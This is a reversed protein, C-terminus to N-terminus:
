HVASMVVKAGQAEAKPIALDLPLPAGAHRLWNVFLQWAEPKIHGWHNHADLLNVAMERITALVFQRNEFAPHQVLQQLLFSVTEPQNAVYQYAENTIRMFRHVVAPHKEISNRHAFLVPCGPYPIGAAELPFVNLGINKWRAEMGEWPMYVWTADVKGELLDNWSDLRPSSIFQPPTYHQGEMLDAKIVAEYVLREYPIDVAAIRRGALQSPRELGSTKLTVIASTNRQLMFALPVLPQGQAAAEVVAEPPGIGIWLKDPEELVRQAPTTAYHDIEPNVVHLDIGVTRYLGRVMAYYIGAHISNPSWDLALNVANAASM